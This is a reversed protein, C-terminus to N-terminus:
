FVNLKQSLEIIAQKKKAESVEAYIDMTTKVNAHGMVSQIVKINTENECFRSCFTHRLNHCTFHPLLIAKRNEKAALEIEAPNYAAVIEKILSNIFSPAYLRGYMNVFIFNTMNDITVVDRVLIDEQWQKEEVFAEYVENMMPVIRVGSDSKPPQVHFRAANDDLLKKYSVSHNIDIYRDELNIDEWRLGIIEGIRCGTGLLVTFLPKYRFYKNRENSIFNLFARQQEVTLAHRVNSKAGTTKRLEAMAGICPNKRIIDDKVALEFTPKLFNDIIRVTGISINKTEILDIYFKLVDSYRIEAILQKGLTDRIYYEWLSSYTTRTSGKLTRKTSFYINFLDTLTVEKATTLKLGDSIDRLLQEEKQRLVSLDKAYIWARKGDEPDTYGFVYVLDSKRQYEGKRLVRGCNDKRSNSM